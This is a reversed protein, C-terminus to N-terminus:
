AAKAHAFALNTRLLTSYSPLEASIRSQSTSPSTFYVNDVMESDSECEWASRMCARAMGGGRDGYLVTVALSQGQSAPEDDVSGCGGPSSSPHYLPVESM